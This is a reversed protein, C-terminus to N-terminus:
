VMQITYTAIKDETMNLRWMTVSDSRCSLMFYAKLQQLYAMLTCFFAWNVWDTSMLAEKDNEKTM